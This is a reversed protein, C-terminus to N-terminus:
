LGSSVHCNLTEFVGKIEVKESYKEFTNIKDKSSLSKSVFDILDTNKSTTCLYFNNDDSTLITGLFISAGLDFSCIGTNKEALWEYANIGGFDGYGNYCDERVPKAGNPQLLFVPKNKNLGYCDIKISERKDATLWSFVGM